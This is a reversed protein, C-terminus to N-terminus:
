SLEDPIAGRRYDEFRELIDAMEADSLIVPDGVQLARWYVGALAEVEVAMALAADPSEGVALMGHNALLCAQRGELAELAHAALAPTGVTAYPACRIDTGGAVAVMYHFAPIPRHLCALTTCYPAHAHVIARVDPRARYVGAHLRWETSPKGGSAAAGDLSMVVLMEPDLRDYPVASPTILMGGDLRGSVNGSTGQNLGRDNMARATRIIADHM